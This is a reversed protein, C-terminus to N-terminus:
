KKGGSGVSLTLSASNNNANPDSILSSVSASNTISGKGRLIVTVKIQASEQSGSNMDGVDWTVVGSQGVVPAKFTGKNAQASVFTSGSSLVDNMQVGQAADPGFNSITVTYTVKDGQKPNLKDAGISVSLDASPPPLCSALFIEYSGDANGLQPFLNSEFAVKEGNGSLVPYLIESGVTDTVQTKNGTGLDMLYIENNHDANGGTWDHTSLFSIRTGDSNTIPYSNYEGAGTQTLIATGGTAADYVFLEYNLEPNASQYGASYFFYKQGDASISGPIAEVGIASIQKLTGTVLDKSFVRYRFGPDGGALNLFSGFMLHTGTADLRSGGNLFGNGTTSTIQKFENTSANYVFVEVNNDSNGGTYNDWSYFSIASGSLDISDIQNGITGNTIQTVASSQLDYLFIEYSGDANQGVENRNSIFAVKSGDGSIFPTLSNIGIGDTLQSTVGTQSDYLFVEYSHDANQGILDSTGSFAVLRGDSSITPNNFGANTTFTVESVGCTPTQAYSFISGALILLSAIITSSISTYMNM